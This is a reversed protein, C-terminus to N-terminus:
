LFVIGCVAGFLIYWIPHKKFVKYLTFIVAFIALQRFDFLTLPSPNALFNDPTLITVSLVSWAASAILGSVAARIGYLANKVIPKDEIRLFFRAILLISIFSPLTLALTTAIGGLVGFREFGIYTAMNVGIPGPTSESIAVMNYFMEPAIWGKEVILQQMIPIGALGGGIAFLGTLFFMLCLSFINM